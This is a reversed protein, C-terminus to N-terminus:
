STLHSSPSTLNERKSCGTYGWFAGSGYLM